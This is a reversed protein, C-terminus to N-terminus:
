FHKKNKICENWDKKQPPFKIIVNINIKKLEEVAIETAIIGAEDNDLALIVNKIEPHKKLHYFLSSIKGTGSLSLYNYNTYKVGQSKIHTMISMTDIFCENVILTKNKKNCIFYLCEDYNSGEIDCMFRTKGTSRISGFTRNINIFVCNNYKKEQYLVKKEICYNIIEEDIKRENKLYNIVIDNNIAPTPINFKIKKDEKKIKNNNINNSIKLSTSENIGYINALERMAVKVNSYNQFEIAFDIVSGAGRHIGKQFVSNRWFCNRIPDIIVSDHEILSFYKGKKVVSFGIKEAYDIIPIEKINDLFGM